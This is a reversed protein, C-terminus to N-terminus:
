KGRRHPPKRNAMKGSDWAAKTNKRLAERLEPSNKRRQAKKTDAIKRKTEESHRFGRNTAAELRINFGYLNNNSKFHNIWELEKVELALVDVLELVIFIFAEAGYKNWARQLYQSHSVKRNLTSKHELWRRKINLASGVYIRGNVSCFIGYVGSVLNDPILGKRKLVETEIKQLQIDM